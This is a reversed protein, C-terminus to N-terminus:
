RSNLEKTWQYYEQAKEEDKEVGQGSRYMDGIKEVTIPYFVDLSNEEKWLEVASNFLEFAKEYDVDM